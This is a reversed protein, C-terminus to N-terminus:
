GKRLRALTLAVDLKNLLTVHTAFVDGTKRTRVTGFLAEMAAAIDLGSDNAGTRLFSKVSAAIADQMSALLKVYASSTVSKAGLLATSAKVVAAADTSDQQHQVRRFVAAGLLLAERLAQATSSSVITFRFGNVVKEDVLELMDVPLSAGRQADLATMGFGVWRYEGPKMRPATLVAGPELRSPGEGGQVEVTPAKFGALAARDVDLRLALDRVKPSANRLIAYYRSGFGALGYHVSMNRQAKNNDNIVLLDTTPWGPTNGNLGPAVFPDSPTGVQVALCLHTSSTPGLTWPASAIKSTEGPAFSVSTTAVSAYPSGTGFEAVLFEADVTEAAGADNRSIRAFAFNQADNQPDQSQPQDSVFTPAVNTRQNWVDSRAYFVPETSPELGTDHTAASDTWDRVYFDSGTAADLETVKFFFPDISPPVVTVGDLGFLKKAAFDHNRQFTVGEPFNGLDPTNSAAFIGYFDKGLAMM